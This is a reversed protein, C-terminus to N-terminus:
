CSLGPLWALRHACSRIAGPVCKAFYFFVVAAAAPDPHRQLPRSIRTPLSASCRRQEGATCVM